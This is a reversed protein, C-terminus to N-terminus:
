PGFNPWLSLDTEPFAAALWAVDDAYEDVLSERVHDHLVFKARKTPNVRQAVDIRTDPM